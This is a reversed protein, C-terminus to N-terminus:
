FMEYIFSTSGSLQSIILLVTIYYVTIRLIRYNNWLKTIDSIIQKKSNQLYEFILYPVAFSLGFALPLMTAQNSQLSSFDALGSLIHLSTMLDPAFFFTLSFGYFLFTFFRGLIVRRTTTLNSFLQARAKKTKFEYFVALAQVLGLVMFNWGAGHWIGFLIWTVFVAITTSHAKIRRLKFSLQMFVYDNFWSSLSIHFRKWFNTVNEALFPKNFNPLLKIGFTRSFGIAIDTYGSFDFYLYLPQILIVLLINLVGPSEASQYLSNVAVGLHNAIVVKKFFGLLAIRLGIIVDESRFEPINNIQPLFHNSREIPGSIFKPFYAFYLLLRLLNKEPKEWGMKINILYGIAQLTFYSIGVPAIIRSINAFILDLGFLELVPSITFSYYKLVIIQAINFVIGCTFLFKRNRLVPLYLGIFYNITSFALVYLLLSVSFTAIFAFSLIALLLIRYRPNLIYFLFIAFITLLSFYISIVNM